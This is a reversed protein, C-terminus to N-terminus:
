RGAPGSTHGPEGVGVQVKQPVGQPQRRGFRSPARERASARARSAGGHGGRRRAVPDHARAPVVLVPVRRTKGPRCSRSATVGSRGTTSRRLSPWETQALCGPAPVRRCRPPSRPGAPRACRGPRARRAWRCGARSRWPAARQRAHRRRPRLRQAARQLGASARAWAAPSVPMWSMSPGSASASKWSACSRPSSVSRTVMCIGASFRSWARARPRRVPRPSSQTRMPWRLSKASPDSPEWVAQISAGKAPCGPLM